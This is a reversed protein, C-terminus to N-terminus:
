AGPDGVRTRPSRSSPGDSPRPPRSASTPRRTPRSPPSRVSSSTRAGSTTPTAAPWTSATLRAFVATSALPHGANPQHVVRIASGYGELVRATGDTSGDNVVVVEEPPRTQSLMADLAQTLYREGNYVTLVASVTPTSM